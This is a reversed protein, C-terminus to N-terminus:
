IKMIKLVKKMTAINVMNQFIFSGGNLTKGIKEYESIDQKM